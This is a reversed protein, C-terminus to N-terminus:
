VGPKAAMLFVIAFLLVLDIRTLKLLRAIKAQVAPSEPGEAEIQNGIRKSEPGFFGAGVLFSIGFLVLSLWIWTMGLDWPGDWVLLFGLLVVLLASPIFVRNGVWDVDRTFSVVRLPDDSALARLAFFQITVAGGVWVIAGAIHLFLLLEYRDM